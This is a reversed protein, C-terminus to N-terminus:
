GPEQSFNKVGSQQREVLGCIAALLLWGLVNIRIDFLTVDFLNFLSCALFTVLYTFLILRDRAQLLETASVQQLNPAQVGLSM